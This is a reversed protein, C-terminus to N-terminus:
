AKPVWATCWGNANVAKGPFISCEIWEGDGKSLQCNACNQKGAPTGAKDTRPAEAADHHYKLAVASPDDESLHPMDGAIAQRSGILTALPMLAVGGVTLKLARRRGPDIDTNKM